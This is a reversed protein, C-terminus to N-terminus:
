YMWTRNIKIDERSNKNIKLVKCITKGIPFMTINNIFFEWRVIFFMNLKQIMPVM